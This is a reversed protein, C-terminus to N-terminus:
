LALASRMPQSGLAGCNLAFGKSMASWAAAAPTSAAWYTAPMRSFDTTAEFLNDAAAAIKESPIHEIYSEGSNLKRVKEEDIDFGLVQYGIDTYRLM